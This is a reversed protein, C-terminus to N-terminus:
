PSPPPGPNAIATGNIMAMMVRMEQRRSQFAVVADVGSGDAYRADRYVLAREVFKGLRHPHDDANAHTGEFPQAWLHAPIVPRYRERAWAFRTAPQPASQYRVHSPSRLSTTAVRGYTHTIPSNGESIRSRVNM